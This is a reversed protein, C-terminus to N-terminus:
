VGPGATRRAPLTASTGRSTFSGHIGVSCCHSRTSATNAPPASGCGPSARAPRRRPAAAPPTTSAACRRDPDPAGSAAPAPPSSSSGGPAPPATSPPSRAHQQRLIQRVPRREAPGPPRQEQRLRPAVPGLRQRKHVHDFTTRRIANAASTGRNEVCVVRCRHKVSRARIPQSSCAIAVNAPCRECRTSAAAVDVQGAPVQRVLQVRPISWMWAHRTPMSAAGRPCRRRDARSRRRRRQRGDPRPPDSAPGPREVRRSKSRRDRQRPSSLARDSSSPRRPGAGLQLTPTGRARRAPLASGAAAAVAPRRRRATSCEGPVVDSGARAIRARQRREHQLVAGVGAAGVPAPRGCSQASSHPGACTANRSRAGPQASRARHPREQDREGVQEAPEGVEVPQAREVPQM